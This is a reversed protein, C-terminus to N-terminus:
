ILEIKSVTKVTLLFPKFVNSLRSCVPQKKNIRRILLKKEIFEKFVITFVFGPYKAPAQVVTKRDNMPEPQRKRCLRFM